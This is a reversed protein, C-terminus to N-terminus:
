KMLFVMKEQHDSGARFEVLYAGAALMGRQLILSHKGANQHKDVLESQMQGNITYM